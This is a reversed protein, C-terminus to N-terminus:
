DRWLGTVSTKKRVHLIAGLSTNGYIYIIKWCKKDVQALAYLRGGKPVENIQKSPLRSLTSTLSRYEVESVSVEWRKFLKIVSNCFFSNRPLLFFHIFKWCVIKPPFSASINCATLSRSKNNVECTLLNLSKDSSNKIIHAAKYKVLTYM